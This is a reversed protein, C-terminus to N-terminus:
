EKLCDNFILNFTKLFESLKREDTDFEPFNVEYTITMNKNELIILYNSSVYCAINIGNRNINEVDLENILGLFDNFKKYTITKFPKKELMVSLLSDNDITSLDINKIDNNDKVTYKIVNFLSDNRMELYIREVTNPSKKGDVEKILSISTIKVENSPLKFTEIQSYLYTNFFFFLFCYKM